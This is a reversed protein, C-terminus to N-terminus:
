CGLGATLVHLSFIFYLLIGCYVHLTEAFNEALFSDRGYVQDPGM